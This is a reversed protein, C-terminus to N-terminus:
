RLIGIVKFLVFELHVHSQQARRSDLVYNRLHDVGGINSQM